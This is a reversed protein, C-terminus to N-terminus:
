KDALPLVGWEFDGIRLDRPSSFPLLFHTSKFQVSLKKINNIAMPIPWLLAAAVLM